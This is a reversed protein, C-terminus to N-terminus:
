KRGEGREKGVEAAVTCLVMATFVSQVPYTSAPALFGLM